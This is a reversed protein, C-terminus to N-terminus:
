KCSPEKGNDSRQAEIMLRQEEEEVEKLIEGIYALLLQTEEPYLKMGKPKPKFVLEVILQRENM